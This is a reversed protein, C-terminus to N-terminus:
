SEELSIEPQVEVLPLMSGRPMRVMTAIVDAVVDPKMFHGSRTFGLKSWGELVMTTDDANWDMGMGTMTPGPRVVGVRVGTGETELRLSRAFGEIGWKTTAYSSMLPRVQDACDSSVLVVDGRRREVMGPVLARVLRHVGVVNVDVERAFQESDTEVLKGPQLVAASCVLAEVDGLDASVAATFEAVSDTSATDLPYAVATGGNANVKAALEACAEIRRAGLAVPHGLAALALATAAGIGSSAGAVVVPRRDPHAPFHSM